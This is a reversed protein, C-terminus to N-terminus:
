LWYGNTKGLSLTYFLPEGEDGDWGVGVPGTREKPDGAVTGTWEIQLNRHRKQLPKELACQFVFYNKVKAVIEPKHVCRRRGRNKPNGLTKTGRTPTETRATNVRTHQAGPKAESSNEWDSERIAM